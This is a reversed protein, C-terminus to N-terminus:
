MFFTAFINDPFLAGLFCNSLSRQFKFSNRPFNRQFVLQESDCKAYAEDLKSKLSRDCFNLLSSDKLVAAFAPTDWHDEWTPQAWQRAFPLNSVLFVDIRCMPIRIRMSM